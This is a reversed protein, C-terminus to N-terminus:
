EEMAEKLESFRKEMQLILENLKDPDGAKGAKEMSLAVKRLAEGGVNASAGKITHAQRTVLEIDKNHADLQQNTAELIDEQEKSEKRLEELEAILQEKTKDTDKNM